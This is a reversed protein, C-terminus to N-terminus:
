RERLSESTTKVLPSLFYEAVSRRGTRIEATVEMGPTLNVWKNEVRIRNTPLRIRTVFLLGKKKDQVADNSVSIVTGKLYGYRTYPFAEIKVIAEQGVEVFGIDKNEVNAEVELTDEPVIELLAQATTVVGGVTHVALQQVTGSVPATMRMLAQRVVAKTQDERSQALAQQAKDLDELQQRRFTATTTEIDSKQENIAATLEHAHSIQAMLEQEESIADHEKQLYEHKAVYNGTSLSQYDSAQQRSLPATKKLKDIEAETTALEAQRKALEAHLSALKGRYELYLGEAYRQTETQREPSVNPVPGVMPSHDRSQAELLAQARAAALDADLRTAKAKDTDAAAQTPDLEMLLQGAEVHEGDQVLISRVVGTIAPQIVKVRENPVLKGQSVAVIDLHGFAALVVIVLALLAIVRMTWHPAPHVPAEVIELHAPLFAIEDPLRRPPDLERRLDWSRRLVQAYRSLLDRYAELKLRM